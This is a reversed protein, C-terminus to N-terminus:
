PASEDPVDERGSIPDVLKESGTDKPFCQRCVHTFGALVNISRVDVEQGCLTLESDEKVCAHMTTGPNGTRCPHPM